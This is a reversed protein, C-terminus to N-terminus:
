LVSMPLLSSLPRPQRQKEWKARTFALFGGISVLIGCAGLLTIPIGFAISTVVIAFVRRICNLAAHHVVSIRTLIYTSALNYSTFALGNVVSLIVYRFLIGSGILGYERSTNWINSIADPVEFILAPILFVFVGTQQMRYQLNIDDMKDRKGTPLNRLIKQRLGRFSFCLNSAMVVLCSKFSEIMAHRGSHHSYTSSNSVTSLLVGAVIAILSVVEDFGLTELGWMVAVAASTLPEAAKVTEVYSAPSGYFSYNTAVFGLSFFLGCM